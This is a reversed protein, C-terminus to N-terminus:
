VKVDRGKKLFLWVTAVSPLGQCHVQRLSPEFLRFGNGHTAVLQWFSRM